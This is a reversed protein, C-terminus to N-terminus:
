KKAKSNKEESPESEATEALVDAEDKKTDSENEAARNLRARKIPRFITVMTALVSVILGAWFIINSIIYTMDFPQQEYSSEFMLDGSPVFKHSIRYTSPFGHYTIRFEGKTTTLTQATPPGFAFGKPVQETTTRPVLSLLSSIILILILGIIIRLFKKM